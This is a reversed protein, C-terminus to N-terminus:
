LKKLIGLLLKSFRGGMEKAVRLVEEHTLADPHGPKIVDTIASFGLIKLGVQRAVIVEPITSMGVADAGFKRLYNLEAFTEYCPGSVAMYVGQKIKLKIEKATKIAFKRLESDYCNLMDPFRPGFSNDHPGILPNTGMMNIQDTILMIEGPKMDGRLGGSANTILLIEVGLQKIVRVYFTCQQLPIGEYYHWRGQFAILPLKGITGYVLQGHHGAISSKPLNPIKSYPIVKKNQIEDVVGGLGSGLMIAIRPTKPLTKNLFVTTQQIQKKFKPIPILM